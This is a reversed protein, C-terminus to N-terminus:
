FYSLHPPTPPLRTKSNEEDISKANRRLKKKKLAVIAIPTTIIIAAATAIIYANQLITEKDRGSAPPPAGFGGTPCIGIVEGTDAWILVRLGTVGGLYMTDLCLFVEWFPYLTYYDKGRYDTGLDVYLPEDLVRFNGVVVTEGKEDAATYTFNKIAEKAIRVADEMSVRLEASGVRYLNWTDVFVLERPAFTVGVRKKYFEIGKEWHSIYVHIITIERTNPDTECLIWFKMNGEIKTYNGLVKVEELMKQMASVHEAGFWVRYRDLILKAKELVDEPMEEAFLPAGAVFDIFRTKLLGKEFIFSAHIEGGAAKLHYLLDVRSPEVPPVLVRVLSVTYKEVDLALVKTLFKLAEEECKGIDVQGMVPSLGGLLCSTLLLLVLVSLTCFVRKLNM